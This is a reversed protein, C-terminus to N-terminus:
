VFLADVDRLAIILEFKYQRFLEEIKWIIEPTQYEKERYTSSFAERMVLLAFALSDNPEIDKGNLSQYAVRLSESIKFLNDGQEKNLDINLCNSDVKYETQDNNKSTSIQIDYKDLELIEIINKSFTVLAEIKNNNM